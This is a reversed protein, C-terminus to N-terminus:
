ELLKDAQRYTLGDLWGGDVRLDTGTIYRSEDAAIFHYAGVIDEPYGIRGLCTGLQSIRAEEDDEPQMPSAITGPSITNVRISRAGLKMAAHKCMSVLPAKSASYLMYGPFAMDVGRTSTIIISGGDNTHAPCHKIGHFVGFTNVAVLDELESTPLTALSDGDFGGMGANLIVIDFTGLLSEAENFGAVVQDEQAVDAQVFTAGIEEVSPNPRRAICVVRAGSQVFRRAVALGIGTTGGTIVATKNEISFTM